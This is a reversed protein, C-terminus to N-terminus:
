EGKNLEAERIMEDQEQIARTLDKREQKTGTCTFKGGNYSYHASGDHNQWQLKNTYLHKYNSMRCTLTVGCSSCVMTTGEKKEVM